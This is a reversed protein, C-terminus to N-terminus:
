NAKPHNPVVALVENVLQRVEDRWGVNDLTDAFGSKIEINGPDQRDLEEYMQVSRCHAAEADGM